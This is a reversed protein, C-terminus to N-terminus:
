FQLCHCVTELGDKGERGGKREKEERSALKKPNSVCVCVCVCMGVGHCISADMLHMYIKEHARSEKEETCSEM